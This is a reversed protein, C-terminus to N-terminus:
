TECGRGLYHVRTGPPVDQKSISAPLSIPVSINEPPKRAGYNILEVGNITTDFSGGDLKTLRIKDGVRVGPLSVTSPIGPVLVCGRGSIQFAQEVTFLFQLDMFEEQPLPEGGTEMNSMKLIGVSRLAAIPRGKGITSSRLKIGSGEGSAGPPRRDIM